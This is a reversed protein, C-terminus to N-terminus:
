FGLGAWDEQEQCLPSDMAGAQTVEQYGLRPVFAM